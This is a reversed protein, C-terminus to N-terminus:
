SLLGHLLVACAETLATLEAAFPSCWCATYTLCFRPRHRLRPRSRPEGVRLGRNTGLIAVRARTQTGVLAEGHGNEAIKRPFFGPCVGKVCLFLTECPEILPRM